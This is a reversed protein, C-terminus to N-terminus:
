EWATQRIREFTGDQELQVYALQLRELIESSVGARSIGFYVPSETLAFDHLSLGAYEPDHTLKYAVSDGDEFFGLIRGAVTKRPNLHSEAVTEFWRAFELDNELRTNFEESYFADQLIGYWLNRQAAVTVLDDLTQIPLDLDTPRVVLVMRAIREPGIWHMYASREETQSLNMMIHLEGTEMEQLARSWPRVVFEPTFGATEVLVRALEVDLGTWEGAANLYYQPPFETVRIKLTEVASAVPTPEPTATPSLTPTPEPTAPKCGSLLLLMAILIACGKYVTSNM